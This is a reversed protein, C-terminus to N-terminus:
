ENVSNCFMNYSNIHLTIDCQEKNKCAVVAEAVKTVSCFNM